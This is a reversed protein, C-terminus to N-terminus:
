SSHAATKSVPQRGERAGFFLAMELVVLVATVFPPGARVGRRSAARWLALLLCWCVLLVAYSCAYAVPVWAAM